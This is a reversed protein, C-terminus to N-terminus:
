QQMWERGCRGCIYLDYEYEDWDLSWFRRKHFLFCWLEALMEWWGLANVSPACCPWM